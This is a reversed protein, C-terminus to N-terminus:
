LRSPLGIPARHSADVLHMRLVGKGPQWFRAPLWRRFCFALGAQDPRILRISTLRVTKLRSGSSIHALLPIRPFHEYFGPMM